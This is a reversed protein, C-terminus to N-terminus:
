LRLLTINTENQLCMQYILIGHLFSMRAGVFEIVM